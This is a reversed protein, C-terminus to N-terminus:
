SGRAPCTTPSSTSRSSSSAPTPSPVAEAFPWWFEVADFGAVAAAAPRDLM